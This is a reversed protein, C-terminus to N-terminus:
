LGVEFLREPQKLLEPMSRKGSDRGQRTLTSRAPRPFAKCGPIAVSDRYRPVLGSGRRNTPRELVEAKQSLLRNFQKIIKPMQDTYRGAYNDRLECLVTPRESVGNGPLTRAPCLANPLGRKSLRPAACRMRIFHVVFRSLRVNTKDTMGISPARSQEWLGAWFIADGVKQRPRQRHHSM